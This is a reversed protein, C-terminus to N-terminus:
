ATNSGNFKDEAEVAPAEGMPKKRPIAPQVPREDDVTRRPGPWSTASEGHRSEHGITPQHSNGPKTIHAPRKGLRHAEAPRPAEVEDRPSEPKIVADPAEAPEPKISQKARKRKRAEPSPPLANKHQPEEDPVFYGPVPRKTRADIYPTENAPKTENASKSTNSQEDAKKALKRQSVRRPTQASDNQATAAPADASKTTKGIRV